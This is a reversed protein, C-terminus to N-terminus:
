DLIISYLKRVLLIKKELVMQDHFTKTKEKYIRLREYADNHIEELEQLQLKRQEGAEDM